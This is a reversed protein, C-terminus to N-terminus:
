PHLIPIGSPQGTSHKPLTSYWTEVPYGRWYRKSTYDYDSKEIPNAGRSLHITSLGESRMFPPRKSEMIGGADSIKRTLPSKKGFAPEGDITILWAITSVVAYGGPSLLNYINEIAKVQDAIYPLTYNSVVLDYRGIEDIELIDGQKFHIDKSISVPPIIDMTHVEVPLEYLKCFLAVQEACRGSGCGLDMYRFKESNQTKNFLYKAIDLDLCVRYNLIDRNNTKNGLYRKQVEIPNDERCFDYWIFRRGTWNICIPTLSLWNLVESLYGSKSFSSDTTNLYDILNPYQNRQRWGINEPCEVIKGYKQECQSIKVM